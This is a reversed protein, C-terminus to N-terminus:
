KKCECLADCGRVILWAVLLCVVVDLSGVTIGFIKLIGVLWTPLKGSIPIRAIIKKIIDPLYKQLDADVQARNSCYDFDVCVAKHLYKKFKDFLKRGRNAMAGASFVMRGGDLTFAQLAADNGIAGLAALIAIENGEARKATQTALRQIEQISMAM